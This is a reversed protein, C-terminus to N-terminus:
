SGPKETSAVPLSVLFQSGEGEETKVFVTGSHARVLHDVIALGLGAGQGKGTLRSDVRYFPDFIRNVEKEPIGIGNDRVSIVVCGDEEHTKLTIKKDQSTYKWANTLLNLVISELGNKDHYVPSEANMEVKLSVEESPVM